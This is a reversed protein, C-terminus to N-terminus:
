TQKDVDLPNKNKVKEVWAYIEAMCDPCPVTLMDNDITLLAHELEM